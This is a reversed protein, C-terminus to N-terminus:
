PLPVITPVDDRIMRIRFSFLAGGEPRNAATISGGHAQVVRRCTSLGLGHGTEKTTVFPEFIREVLEPPMGTGTDRVTVICWGGEVLEPRSSKALSHRSLPNDPSSNRPVQRLGTPALAFEALRVADVASRGGSQDDARAEVKIDITGGKPLADLANLVLNLLVQRFQGADAYVRVPHDPFRQVFKVEQATARASVLELTQVCLTRMDFVNKELQPPRAFDLFAQLSTEMRGIEENMVQLSRGRLGPGDDGKQVASQVLMKMPMLPNRLEHALGAAMQGLSALQERRLIELDQRQLREVVDAIHQEMAQLSLQLEQMTTGESLTVPGLVETLRGAVGQVSVHLKVMTKRLNLAVGVGLALGALSGCTGLLIFGIRIRKATQKLANNSTDIVQRNYDVCKQAPELVEKTLIQDVLRALSKQQLEQPEASQIRQYEDYFHIYGREVVEVLQQEAPTRASRKAESLLEQTDTRHAEIKDFELRSGTRLFLDLNRRFERMKTYLDQAAVVGHVEQAILLSNDSQTKDVWWAALVGLGLLLLSTAIVPWTAIVITRTGM